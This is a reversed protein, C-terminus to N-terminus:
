PRCFFHSICKLSYTKKTITIVLISLEFFNKSSLIESLRVTERKVNPLELGMLNKGPITEVVRISFLSLSRALDKALAVIQAGKVGIAPEIEYLTVVPGPQASVVKVEVGFDKLRMEILGSIYSLTKESIKTYGYLKMFPWLLTELIEIDQYSFFRGNSIDISRTDFGSIMNMSASPRSFQLNLFESKQLSTNYDVGIWNTIKPLIEKYNRKIDELKVGRTEFFNNFPNYM